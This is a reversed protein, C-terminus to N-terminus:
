WGNRPKTHEEPWSWTNPEFNDYTTDYLQKRIFAEKDVPEPYTTAKANKYLWESVDTAIKISM